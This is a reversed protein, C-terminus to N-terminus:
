RSCFIYNTEVTFIDPGNPLVAAYVWVWVGAYMNYIIYIERRCKKRKARRVPSYFRKRTHRHRCELYPIPPLLIQPHSTAYHLSQSKYSKRGGTVWRRGSCFVIINYAIRAMAKVATFFQSGARVCV